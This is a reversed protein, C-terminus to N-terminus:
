VHRTIKYKHNINIIMKVDLVYENIMNMIIGILVWFLQVVIVIYIM